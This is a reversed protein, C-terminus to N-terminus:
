DIIGASRQARHKSFFIAEDDGMRGTADQQVALFCIKEEM